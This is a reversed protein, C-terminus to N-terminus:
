QLDNASEIFTKSYNCHELIKSIDDKSVELLASLTERDFKDELLLQIEDDKKMKQLKRMQRGKSGFMNHLFDIPSFVASLTRSFGSPQSSGAEYGQNLGAIQYRYDDYIPINKADIELYGTLK